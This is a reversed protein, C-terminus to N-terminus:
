FPFEDDNKKPELFDFDEVIVDTSYVTHGDKEYSGTRIRGTVSIKHGKDTYRTLTEAMAGFATCTIFDVEKTGDAKKRGNVALSFSAVSTGSHTTKLEIPKTLRGILLAKNM